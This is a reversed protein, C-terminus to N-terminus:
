DEACWARQAANCTNTRVLWPSQPGPAASWDVPLAAATGFNTISSSSGGLCNVEGPPDIFAGLADNGTRIWGYSTTPPGQGSDGTTLGRADDYELASPERLEWLSALHFGVGCAGEAAGAAQTTVTLFFRKRGSTGCLQDPCVNPGSAKGEVVSQQGNNAITNDRYLSPAIASTATFRIGNQGVRNVLNEAAFSGGSLHIGHRAVDTVRLRRVDAQQGLSVGDLGFGRIKGNAVSCQNGGIVGSIIGSGSGPDPCGTLCSVPGAIEFGGLDVDVGNALEIGNTAAPVSLNSTLRYSGPQTIQVPYGPTDGAFCGAVTACTHNIELVGDSAHVGAAALSGAAAAFLAAIRAWGSGRVM